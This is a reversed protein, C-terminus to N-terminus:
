KSWDEEKNKGGSKIKKRYGKEEETKVRELANEVKDKGEAVGKQM